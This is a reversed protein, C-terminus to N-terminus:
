HTAGAGRRLIAQFRGKNAAMWADFTRIEPYLARCLELDKRRSPMFRRQLEFMNALDAAGPFGYSAFVDRPIHKYEIRVGTVSSMTAAYSTVPQEDGVVGVTRGKFEDGRALIAAVVGGLDEVDVCALPVDDQPFGFTFSGGPERRPPFATLFNEYYFAVHVYTAALKLGRAYDELRAKIDMHPVGLEGNTMKLAGPLSSLIFHDVGAAAVADVLTKGQEYEREFHEWYNTVGFVCRCGAIAADLSAKDDLDGGVIDAGAARLRTAAESDPNRTMCRVAYGGSSLLRRAVSGGQAGTAGVILISKKKSM